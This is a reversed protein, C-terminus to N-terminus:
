LSSNVDEGIVLFSHRAKSREPCGIGHQWNEVNELEKYDICYISIEM